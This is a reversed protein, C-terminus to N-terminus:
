VSNGCSGISGKQTDQKSTERAKPRAENASHMEVPQGPTM